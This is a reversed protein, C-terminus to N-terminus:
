GVGEYYQVNKGHYAKEKHSARGTYVVIYAALLQQEKSTNILYKEGEMVSVLVRPISERETTEAVTCM